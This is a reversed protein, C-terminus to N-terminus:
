QLEVKTVCTLQIHQGGKNEVARELKLKQFERQIKMMAACTESVESTQGLDKMLLNAIRSYWIGEPLDHGMAVMINHANDSFM